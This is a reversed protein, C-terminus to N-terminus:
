RPDRSNEQPDAEVAPSGIVMHSVLVWAGAALSLVLIVSPHGAGQSGALILAVAATLGGLVGSVFGQRLTIRKRVVPPSVPPLRSMIRDVLDEPMEFDKAWVRPLAVMTAIDARCTACSALHVEVERDGEGFYYQILRDPEPCTM